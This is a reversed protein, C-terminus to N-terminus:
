TSNSCIMLMKSMAIVHHWRTANGDQQLEMGMTPLMRGKLNAHLLHAGVCGQVCVHGINQNEDLGRKCKYCVAM